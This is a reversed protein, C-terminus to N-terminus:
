QAFRAAAQATAATCLSGEHRYRPAEGEQTTRAPRSVEHGPVARASGDDRHGAIVLGRALCVEVAADERDEAFLWGQVGPSLVHVEADGQAHINTLSAVGPIPRPPVHSDQARAITSKPTGTPVQSLAPLPARQRHLLPTQKPFLPHCNCSHLWM